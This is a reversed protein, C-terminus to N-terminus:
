TIGIGFTKKTVIVIPINHIFVLLNIACLSLLLVFLFLPLHYIEGLLTSPHSGKTETTYMAVNKKEPALSEL